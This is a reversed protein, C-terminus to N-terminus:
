SKVQALEEKTANLNQLAFHSRIAIVFFGIIIFTTGVYYTWSFKNKEFFSDILMTLPVVLIVSTNSMLPGLLIAARAWFYEFLLSAFLINIMIYGIIKGKPLEFTELGTYHFIVLFPWFSVMSLVGMYGLINCFSVKEEIKTPILKAYITSYLGFLAANIIGFIDGMGRGAGGYENGDTYAVTIVGAACIFVGFLKIFSFRDRLIIIAYFFVFSSSM